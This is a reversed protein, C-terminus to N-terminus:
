QQGASGPQGNNNGSNQSSGQFTNGMMFGQPPQFSFGPASFFQPFFDNQGTLQQMQDDFSQKTSMLEQVAAMVADPDMPQAAVLDKVQQLQDQATAILSQLDSTVVHKGQLIKIRKQAQTLERAMQALGRRVNVSIDLVQQKSQLNDMNGFFDNQLSDMATQPDSQSTVKIQELTAQMQDIASKFDALAQTLDVKSTKAKKVYGAYMKNAMDLQKQAQKLMKPLQAAMQLKPLNEQVTQMAAQMDSMVSQLDDGSQADKIQSASSDLTSLAQTLDGPITVGQKQLSKIQSKTRNIQSVFQSLNRKMMDLRQQDMQQQQGSSDQMNQSGRNSNFNNQNGNGQFQGGPNTTGQGPNGSPNSQGPPFSNQNQPQCPTSSATNNCPPLNFNGRSSDQHGLNNPPLCPTSSASPCPPPMNGSGPGPQGFNNNPSSLPCPNDGPSDCPHGYQLQQQSGQQQSPPLSSPNGGTTSSFVQTSTGTDGHALQTTGGTIILFAALASISIMWWSVVPHVPRQLQKNVHKGTHLLKHAHKKAHEKFNPM